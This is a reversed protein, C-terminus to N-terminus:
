IITYKIECRMDFQTELYMKKFRAEVLETFEYLLRTADKDWVQYIKM